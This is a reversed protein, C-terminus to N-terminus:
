SVIDLQRRMLLRTTPGLLKVADANWAIQVVSVRPRLGDPLRAGATLWISTQRDPARDLYGLHWQIKPQASPMTSSPGYCVPWEKIM